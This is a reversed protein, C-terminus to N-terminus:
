KGPVKEVKGTKTNIKEDPALERDIKWEKGVRRVLYARPHETEDGEITYTFAGRGLGKSVPVAPESENCATTFAFPLLLLLSAIRPM